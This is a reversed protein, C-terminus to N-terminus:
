VGHHHYIAWRACVLEAAFMDMPYDEFLRMQHFDRLPILAIAALADAEADEKSQRQTAGDVHFFAVPPAHLYYHALEHFMVHLKRLRPLQSNIFIFAQGGIVAYIGPVEMVKEVVQINEKQCLKHFDTDDLARQNWGLKRMVRLVHKM